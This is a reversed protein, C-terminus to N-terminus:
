KKKSTAPPTACRMDVIKSDVNYKHNDRGDVTCDASLEYNYDYAIFMRMFIKELNSINTVTRPCQCIKDNM